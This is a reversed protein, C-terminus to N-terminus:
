EKLIIYDDKKIIKFPYIKRIMQLAVDLGDQQRFKITYEHDLISLKEVRIPVNYYRELKCIINRLPENTFSYIGDKWLFYDPDTIHRMDMHGNICLLQEGPQLVVEQGTSNGMKVRGRILSVSTYDTEDYSHVNFTTGLVTVKYDKTSVTFPHADDHKVEFFAEGNLLVNREKGAFHSPYRLSSQANLWVVTSDDLILRARQGAPVFMEHMSVKQMPRSAIDWTFIILIAVSAAYATTKWLIRRVIKHRRLLVFRRFGTVGSQRDEAAPILHMLSYTNQFDILQQKLQKDAETQRLFEMRERGSMKGNFYRILTEDM